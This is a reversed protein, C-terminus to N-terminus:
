LALVQQSLRKAAIECYREEIEVGIASRGMQKAAVLTTGSGMFPDVVTGRTSGVCRAALETPMSSPHESQAVPISWVTGNFRGHFEYTESSSLLFIYEHSQSPRDARIPETGNGKNWVVTSRLYWGDRRLGEAVLFPALTQDKMKYGPPPMRFGVRSTLGSWCARGGHKGGGGKGSAAWSEGVNLWLVSNSARLRSFVHVLSECWEAPTSQQGIESGDVRLSWYPPSTVITEATVEVERCDGHYITIGDKEYYPKM